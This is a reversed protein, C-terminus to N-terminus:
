LNGFVWAEVSSIAFTPPQLPLIPVPIEERGRKRPKQEKIEAEVLDEDTRGIRLNRNLWLEGKGGAHCISLSDFQSRIRAKHERANPFLEFKPRCHFLVSHELEYPQDSPKLITSVLAGFVRKKKDKVLILIPSSCGNDYVEALRNYFGELSRKHLSTSYVPSWQTNGLFNNTIHYIDEIDLIESRGVILEPRCEGDSHIVKKLEESLTVLYTSVIKKTTKTSLDLINNNTNPFHDMKFECNGKSILLVAFNV